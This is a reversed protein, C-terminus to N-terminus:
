LFHPFKNVASEEQDLLEPKIQTNALPITNLEQLVAGREM